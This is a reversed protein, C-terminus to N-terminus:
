FLRVLVQALVVTRLVESGPATLLTSSNLPLTERLGGEGKLPMAKLDFAQVGFDSKLDSELGKCPTMYMVETIYEDKRLKTRLARFHDSM